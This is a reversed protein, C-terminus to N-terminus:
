SKVGKLFKWVDKIALSLQKHSCANVPVVLRDASKSSDVLGNYIQGQLSGASFPSEAAGDEEFDYAAQNYSFWSDFVVDTQERDYVVWCENGTEILMPCGAYGIGDAELRAETYFEGTMGCMGCGQPMIVEEESTADNLIQFAGFPMEFSSRKQSYYLTSGLMGLFTSGEDEEVTRSLVDIASEIERCYKFFLYDYLGLTDRSMRNEGWPHCKLWSLLRDTYMGKSPKFSGNLLGKMCLVEDSHTMKGDLLGDKQWDEKPVGLEHMAMCWLFENISITKVEESFDSLCEAIAYNFENGSKTALQSGKLCVHVRIKSSANERFSCDEYAKDIVMCFERYKLANMLNFLFEKSSEDAKAYAFVAQDYTLQLVGSMSFMDAIGMESINRYLETKNFITPDSIYCSDFLRLMYVRYLSLYYGRLFMMRKPKVKVKSFNMKKVIEGVTM